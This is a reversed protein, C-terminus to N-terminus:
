FYFNLGLGIRTVFEKLSYERRYTQSYSPNITRSEYTGSHATYLVKINSTLSLSENFFYEAGFGFNFHWPSNIEENFEEENDEFIEDPNPTVYLAKNKLESFAFQKGFGALVYISVGNTIFNQFYYKVGINFDLLKLGNINENGRDYNYYPDNVSRYHSESNAEQISASYGADFTFRLQPLIAYSLQAELNTQNIANSYLEYPYSSSGTYIMRYINGSFYPVYLVGFSWKNYNNKVNRFSQSPQITINELAVESVQVQNKELEVRSLEAKLKQENKIKEFRSETFHNIDDKDKAFGNRNSYITGNGDLYVSKLAEVIISEEKNNNYIFYIKSDDINTILCNASRGDVLFISDPLQIQAFTLVSFLFFFLTKM